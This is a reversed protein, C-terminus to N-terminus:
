QKIVGLQKLLDLQDVSMWHEMIKGNTVRYIIIFPLSAQKGTPGIGMLDGKHTGRFRARVAVRDGEAIMDDAIMEYRPFAAEFFAIHQKLEEDDVFEELSTAPKDKGSVAEFYRRVLAKNEETLM